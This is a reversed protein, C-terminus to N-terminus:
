LAKVYNSCTVEMVQLMLHSFAVSLREAKLKLCKSDVILGIRLM